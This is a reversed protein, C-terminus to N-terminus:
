IYAIEDQDTRYLSIATTHLPPCHIGVSRCSFRIRDHSAYTHSQSAWTSSGVAVRSEPSTSYMPSRRLILRRQRMRRSNPWRENDTLLPSRRRIRRTPLTSLSALSSASWLVSAAVSRSVFVNPIMQPWASAVMFKVYGNSWSIMLM